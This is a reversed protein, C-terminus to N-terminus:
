EGSNTQALNDSEVAKRGRIERFQRSRVLYEIAVHVRYDNAALADCMERLLPEDSLQVSRGLAYGVLKRTFQRVFADRRASIVYDKLGQEDAIQTGDPLRTSSDIALGAADRARYGGIADFHELAFGFPDIRAHCKACSADSSHRETLQRETLGAPINDDLVPVNKPPRPLKEGLVVESIWAGRLIPSTRSAGAQKALTAAFTLVGGRGLRRVGEVRRWDPGEIGAIGYHAALKDNVFTYDADVMNLISRNQQFLDTFFRVAEEHMDGRLAAFSPFHRESKENLQAFDALHLWQCAFENALRSVKPDQLLRVAQAALTDPKRLEGAAALALLEADPPSSWLFYSLRTALEYDSVPVQETGPGPKEIRYLFEPSVLVRTLLLRVSQDHPYEESRLKEYFQELDRKETVALPRRFAREALSIVAQVHHPEADLLQQRFKGAREMIPQQLPEFVSPDADQSAYELLQALADVLKLADQSIFRLEAWLRDLEACQADSLLLRQLQDDERYYLSLTIVEDVPVIKSYCLAAPFLQRYDAFWRAFRQRAASGDAAIVPRAHDLGRQNSTWKGPTSTERVSTPQLGGAAAPKTASVWLQVSGEDMGRTHLAGTTVFATGAVLEAPLRIEIVAPAQICLSNSDVSDSEAGDGPFRGFQQPRLGWQQGALAESEDSREAAIGHLAPLLLPGALSTLQRYLRADPSDPSLEGPGNRLLSQVRQALQQRQDDSAAIQWQALLSNAPIGQDAAGGSTEFCFHWTDPRGDSGPHPNAALVNDSVDQALDWTQAGDCLTLEVATLDCSHNGDRPHIALTIFDGVRVQVDELPGFAVVNAGHSMGDALRQRTNGRRMELIWEVGNGCEPHAHQVSGSIALKAAAAARWGVVVAQTPSPHVAVSHPKLNGPIRVAQDSSNAVLSLAEDGVWGKVFEYGALGEITQDLLTGIRPAEERAIGLYDLWGRLADPDVRHQEALADIDVAAEARNAEVAAALCSAASGFLRDRRAALAQAVRPVDRLLLDPRGQAVLRPREWVVYDQANGDGADGAALYITAESTGSAPLEVRFEQRAVIPDIPEMWARPGDRKGIHGVSSFRWLAKQWLAIEAALASADDTGAALWRARVAALLPSAKGHQRDNPPAQLVNWLMRLYKASLGREAAVLDLQGADRNLRDREALTAALYRTLPLRGGGNTNFEIGQLNVREGDTDETFKGYFARVRALSENIWDGRATSTSFRLGDPLLVAHAAIQKAADLYKTFLAPSMVLSQGTNTFGEGAASDVPFESAPDLSDLGTLERVTNTYEVNNLRRLLVPGPDGAHAQAERALYERVWGLMRKHQAETPQEVEGPPMQGSELMEAVRQWLDPVRRVDDLSAFTSLDIEAEALDPGHCNRCYSNLLPKIESQYTESLVQLDAPEEARAAGALCAAV